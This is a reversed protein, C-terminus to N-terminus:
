TRRNIHRSMLKAHFATTLIKVCKLTNALAKMRIMRALFIKTEVAKEM